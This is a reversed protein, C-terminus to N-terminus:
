AMEQIHILDFVQAGMKCKADPHVTSAWIPLSHIRSGPGLSARPDEWRLGPSLELCDFFSEMKM